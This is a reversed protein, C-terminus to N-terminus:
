IRSQWREATSAVAPPCGQQRTEFPPEAGLDQPWRAVVIRFAILPWRRGKVTLDNAPEPELLGPRRMAACCERVNRGVRLM